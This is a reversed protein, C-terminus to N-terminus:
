NEYTIYSVYEVGTRLVVTEFKIDVQSSLVGMSELQTLFMNVSDRLESVDMDKKIEVRLM